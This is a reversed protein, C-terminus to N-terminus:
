LIGGEQANGIIELYKPNGDSLKFYDRVKKDISVADTGIMIKGPYITTGDVQGGRMGIVGDVINLVINKCISLYLDAIREHIEINKRHVPYDHIIRPDQMLGVLNKVAATIGTIWHEKMKALNLIGWDGIGSPLSIEKLYQGHFDVPEHPYKRLNIVEVGPFEKQIKDLGGLKFIAGINKESYSSSEGIIVRGNYFSQLYRLVEKLSDPHTITGTEPSRLHVLNPKVLITSFSQFRKELNQDRLIKELNNYNDTNIEIM